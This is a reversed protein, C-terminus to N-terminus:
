GKRHLKPFILFVLLSAFFAMCSGVHFLQCHCTWISPPHKVMPSCLGNLTRATSALSSAKVTCETCLKCWLNPGDGINHALTYRCSHKMQLQLHVDRCQCEICNKFLNLLHIKFNLVWYDDLSVIKVKQTEAVTIKGTTCGNSEQWKEM